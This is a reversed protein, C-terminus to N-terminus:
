LNRVLRLRGRQTSYGELQEYGAENTSFDWYWYYIDSGSYHQSSFYKAPSFGGITNRVKYIEELEHLTPVRWDTYGGLTAYFNVNSCYYMADMGCRLEVDLNSVGIGLADVRVFVSSDQHSGQSVFEKAKGYVYKDKGKGDSIHAFARVYMKKNRPLDIMPCTFRRIGNVIELYDFSYIDGNDKYSTDIIRVNVVTSSDPAKYEIYKHCGYFSDYQGVGSFRKFSQITLKSSDDGYIVGASEMTSDSPLDGKVSVRGSVGAVTHGNFIVTENACVDGTAVVVDWTEDETCSSLLFICLWATLHYFRVKRRFNTRM